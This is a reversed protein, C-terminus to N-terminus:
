KVYVASFLARRLEMAQKRTLKVGISGRNANIKLWLHDTRTDATVIVEYGPGLEILSTM